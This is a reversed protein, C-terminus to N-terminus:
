ASLMYEGPSVKEVGPLRIVAAYVPQYKAGIERALDAIRFAVGPKVAQAVAGRVNVPSKSPKADKALTRKTESSKAKVTKDRDVEGVAFGDGLVDRVQAKKEDASNWSKGALATPATRPDWTGVDRHYAPASEADFHRQPAKTHCVPCMVEYLPPDMALLKEYRSLPMAEEFKVGCTAKQCKFVYLM